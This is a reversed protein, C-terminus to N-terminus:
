ASNPQAGDPPTLTGPGSLTQQYAQADAEAQFGASCAGNPGFRPRTQQIFGNFDGGCRAAFAPTALSGCVLITLIQRRM